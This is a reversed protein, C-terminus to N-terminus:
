KAKMEYKSVTERVESQLSMVMGSLDENKRKAQARAHRRRPTRMRGPARAPGAHACPLRMCGCAPAHPRMAAAHPCMRACAPAHSRRAAHLPMRATHPMCACAPPAHPSGVNKYANHIEDLKLTCREKLQARARACPPHPAADRSAHSCVLAHAGEFGHTGLLRARARAQAMKTELKAKERMAKEAKRRELAVEGEVLRQCYYRISTAASALAVDPTHGILSGQTRPRPRTPAHHRRAAPPALRARTRTRM